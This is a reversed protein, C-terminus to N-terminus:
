RDYLRDSKTHGGYHQLEAWIEIAEKETTFKRAVELIQAEIDQIDFDETKMKKRCVRWLSSSVTRHRKPEGRYLYNGDASKEAIVRIIALIADLEDQPESPDLINM